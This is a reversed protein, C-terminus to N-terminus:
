RTPVHSGHSVHGDQVVEGDQVKQPSNRRRILFHCAWPLILWCWCSCNNWRLADLIEFTWAPCSSNLARRRPTVLLQMRLKKCTYQLFQNACQNEPEKGLHACILFSPQVVLALSKTWLWLISRVPLPVVLTNSTLLLACEKRVLCPCDHRAWQINVCFQCLM